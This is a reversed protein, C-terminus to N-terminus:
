NEITKPSVMVMPQKKNSQGNVDILGNTEITKLPFPGNTPPHFPEITLDLLPGRSGSKMKQAKGHSGHLLIMMIMMIM